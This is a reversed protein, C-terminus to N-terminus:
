VLLGQPSTPASQTTQAYCSSANFLRISPNSSPYAPDPGISEFCLRAPIKYAHGGSSALPGGTVDPGIAPWPPTGFLTAWWSPRDPLYFSSPWSQSAPVPNAFTTIGSPVESAQFRVSNSVSDYNGWRMLTRTVHSDSSPGSGGHSGPYD